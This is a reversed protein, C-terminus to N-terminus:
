VSAAPFAAQYRRKIEQELDETFTHFQGILKRAQPTLSAGGGGSGGVETSVLQIGLRDEIEHLREWARRYPVKMEKAAASISGKRDVAELLGIRWASLVVGGGHEIWVNFRPKM